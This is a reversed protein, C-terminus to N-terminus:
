TRSINTRIAALILQASDAEKKDEACRTEHADISAKFAADGAAMKSAIRAQM